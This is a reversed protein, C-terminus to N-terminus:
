GRGAIYEGVAPGHTRLAALLGPLEGGPRLRRVENFMDQAEEPADPDDPSLPTAQLGDVFEGLRHWGVADGLADLFATLDAPLAPM